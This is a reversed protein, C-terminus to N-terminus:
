NPRSAFIVLIVWFGALYALGSRSRFGLTDLSASGLDLRSLGFRVQVPKGQRIGLAPRAVHTVLCLEGYALESWIRSARFRKATLRDM